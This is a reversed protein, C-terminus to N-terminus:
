GANKFQCVPLDTTFLGPFAVSKKKKKKEAPGVKKSPKKGALYARM